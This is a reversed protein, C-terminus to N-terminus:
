RDLMMFMVSELVIVADLRRMVVGIMCAEAKEFCAKATEGFGSRHSM